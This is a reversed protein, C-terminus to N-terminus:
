RDIYRIWIKKFMPLSLTSLLFGLTPVIANLWPNEVEIAWMYVGISIYTFVGILLKRSKCTEWKKDVEVRLNRKELAEVRKIIEDCKNM